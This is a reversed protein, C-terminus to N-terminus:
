EDFFDPRKEMFTYYDTFLATFIVTDAGTADIKESLRTGEKVGSHLDMSTSVTHADQALVWRMSQGFSDSIQLIEKGGVKSANTIVNSAEKGYWCSYFAFREYDSEIGLPGSTLLLADEAGNQVDLHRTELVPEHAPSDILMLASRSNQGCFVYDRLDGNAEIDVLRDLGLESPIANYADIAGFGNWHDDSSYFRELYLDMDSYEKSAVYVNPADVAADAIIRAVHDTTLPDSVLPCSPNVRSTSGFDPVIICVAIDDHRMAWEAVSEGFSRLGELYEAKAHLAAGRLSDSEPIYVYDSGFDPPYCDWQCLANSAKILERHLAANMLLMSAKYPISGDIEAEVSDQLRKAM